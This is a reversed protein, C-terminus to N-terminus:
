QLNVASAPSSHSRRHPGRPRFGEPSAAARMNVDAGGDLLTQVVEPTAMAGYDSRILIGAIAMQVDISEAVPFLRMLEELSEPDSLRQSALTELALIQARSGNM